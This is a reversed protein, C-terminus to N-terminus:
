FLQVVVASINDSSGAKFADQVLQSAIAKSAPNSRALFQVREAVQESTAVAFLGDSGLLLYNNGEQLQNLDYRIVQGRPNLGSREEDHNVGRSMNMQGVRRINQNSSVFINQGRKWVSRCEKETKLEADISLAAVKGDSCLIARSDGVNVVWLAKDITLALVATSGSAGTEEKRIMKAMELFLLKLSNFITQEKYDQLYPSLAPPLITRLKEGINNKLYESTGCGGHGDFVAFYQVSGFKFNLQGLAIRDEQYDRQGATMAGAANLEEACNGPLELDIKCACAPDSSEKPIKRDKEDKGCVQDWELCRERGLLRQAEDFRRKLHEQLEGTKYCRFRANHNVLNDVIRIEPDPTVFKEGWLVRIREALNPYSRYIDLSIDFRSLEIRAQKISEWVRLSFNIKPYTEKLQHLSKVATLLDSFTPSLLTKGSRHLVWDDFNGSM